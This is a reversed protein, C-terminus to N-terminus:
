RNELTIILCKANFQEQFKVLSKSDRKRGSKVEVAILKNNHVVVFDVEYKGDKWYYVEKYKQILHLGVVLEFKRGRDTLGFLNLFVPARPMLKPSSGKKQLKNTSFKELTYILFAQEYLKLYHKVLDVNGSEQLQGLFKNLSLIEAAYM